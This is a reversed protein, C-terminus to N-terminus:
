DNEKGLFKRMRFMRYDAERYAVQKYASILQRDLLLMRHQGDYFSNGIIAIKARNSIQYECRYILINSDLKFEIEISEIETM